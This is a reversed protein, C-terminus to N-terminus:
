GACGAAGAGYFEIKECQRSLAFERLEDIAELADDRSLGSGAALM